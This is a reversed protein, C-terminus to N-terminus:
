HMQQIFAGALIPSGKGDADNQECLCFHGLRLHGEEEDSWLARAKVAAFIGARRLLPKLETWLRRDGKKANAIGTSATCTISAEQYGYCHGARCEDHMLLHRRKCAPVDLLQDMGDGTEFALCCAPCWCSYNAGGVRGGGRMLVSYGSSIVDFTSYTPPEGAQDIRHLRIPQPKSLAYMSRFAQLCMKSSTITYRMVIEDGAPWVLENKDIYMVVMEKFKMHAHDALWKETSFLWRLLQAVELAETIRGSPTSNMKTVIANIIDNRVKTKVVAGIGDWPGKGNGPCSFEVM